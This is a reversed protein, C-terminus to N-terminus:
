LRDGVGMILAMVVEVDVTVGMMATMVLIFWSLEEKIKRYFSTGDDIGGVM